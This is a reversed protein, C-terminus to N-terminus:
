IRGEATFYFILKTKDFTFETNILKMPLDHKKIKEKGVTYANKAEEKLQYYKEIEEKSAKKLVPKLPLV